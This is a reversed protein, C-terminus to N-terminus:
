TLNIGAFKSGSWDESMEYYENLVGLLHDVHQKGVYEVGFDDVILVFQIPRWSHKWLGATTPAEFYGAKNLWTCLLDNALKGSQPLGYAGCIVEFYIWVNYQGGSKM